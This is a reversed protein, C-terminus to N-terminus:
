PDYSCFVGTRVAQRLHKALAPSHEAIRTMADLLRQRVNVRAKEATSSAKRGRGGLGVGRALEATLADIEEHARAARAADNHRSAEAAADRLDELRRKYTAIARADLMDGADEVHGAEGAPALLDTVHFERGPHAVLRALISLGRTDRLRFTTDAHITWLEGEKCLEFRAPAPTLTPAAVPETVDTLASRTALEELREVWHAIPQREMVMALPSWSFQRAALPALLEVLRAAAHRDELALCAEASWVLMPRGRLPPEHRVVFDLDARAEEARGLRALMGARFTPRYIPDGIQTLLELAKPLHAALEDLRGAAWLRQSTHLAISLPAGADDVRSAIAAAEACLAESEEFRGEMLARMARLMPGRWRLVPLDLVRSLRDYEEITHDASATDGCELHDHALRLLGRLVSIRDGLRTAIAVLETDLPLRECPDAFYLMASTGAVLVELQTPEDAVRRAMAIARRALEIPPEPDVAPQLAAALRGLLRARFPSEGDPLAALAEELLGVLVRDVMAVQYASGYRLAAQALREADGLRRAIAAAAVATQRGRTAYGAGIQAAGLELLLDCKEVHRGPPLLDSAGTLLEAAEGFALRRAAREAGRRAWLSAEEVGVLPAAAFLHHVAEALSADLDAGHRDLLARAVRAHLDARRAAPLEHYLVERILIHSFSTRGGAEVLVDGHAAESALDRVVPLELEVLRATLELDITRGLVSAADLLSRAAPSLTALRARIVERVGDPLRGSVSSSSGRARALRLMEVVFLPNGETTSFLTDADGLGEAAAWRAVEDRGLRGLALYRGERAIRALAEGAEASLRAEVDRYAAVLVVRAARLNRAVFHLLALSSVDAAHLDDLLVVLARERAVLGLFTAVAEFLRFRDQAPDGAHEPAESAELEPLLRALPAIRRQESESAAGALATFPRLAEVWPWYAPAGGAEWARGWTVRAGCAEAERAFEDALRTKGIGPEGVLLVLAVHGAEAVRLAERLEGLERERGLFRQSGFAGV